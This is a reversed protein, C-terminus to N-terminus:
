KARLVGLLAVKMLCGVFAPEENLVMLDLADGDEGCTGPIFGFDFPFHMGRPLIRSLRFLGLEPDYKYKNGSGRPTDIVANVLRGGARPPVAMVDVGTPTAM